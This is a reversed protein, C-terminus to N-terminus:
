KIEFNDAFEETSTDKKLECHEYIHGLEHILIGRGEHKGMIIKTSHCNHNSDWYVWYWGGNCIKQGYNDYVRCHAFDSNVFEIVNVYGYYKSPISYVINKLSTIDVGEEFVFNPYNEPNINSLPQIIEKFDTKIPKVHEEQPKVPEHTYFGMQDSFKATTPQLPTPTVAGPLLVPKLSCSAVWIGMVVMIWWWRM